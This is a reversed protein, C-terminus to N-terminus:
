PWMADPILFSGTRDAFGAARHSPRMLVGSFLLARFICVILIVAAAILGWQVWRRQRLADALIVGVAAVVGLLPCAVPEYTAVLRTTVPLRDELGQYIPAFRFAAFRLWCFIIFLVAAVVWSKAHASM